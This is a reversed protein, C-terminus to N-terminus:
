GNGRQRTGKAAPAPSREAEPQKVTAAVDALDKCGEPADPGLDVLRAVDARV